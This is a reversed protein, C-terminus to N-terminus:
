QHEAHEAGWGWVGCLGVCRAVWAADGISLTREDVAVGQARIQEVHASRAEVRGVAHGQHTARAFQERQDVLLVVQM